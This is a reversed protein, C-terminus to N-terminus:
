VTFVAIGASGSGLTDMSLHIKTTSGVRGTSGMVSKTSLRRPTQTLLDPQDYDASDDVFDTQSEKEYTEKVSPLIEITGICKIISLSKAKEHALDKRSLLKPRTGLAASSSSINDSVADDGRHLALLYPTNRNDSRPHLSCNPLETIITTGLHYSM